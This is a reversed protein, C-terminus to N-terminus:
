IPTTRDREDINLFTYDMSLRPVRESSERNKVKHHSPINSKARVCVACWSKFKSHGLLEHEEREAVSPTQPITSEYIAINEDTGELAGDDILDDMGGSTYRRKDEESLGNDEAEISEEIRARKATGMVVKPSLLKTNPKPINRNGGTEWM